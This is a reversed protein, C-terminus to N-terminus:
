CGGGDMKRKEKLSVMWRRKRGKEFALERRWKPRPGGRHGLWEWERWFAPGMEKEGGGPGLPGFAWRAERWGKGEMERKCMHVREDAVVEEGNNKRRCSICADDGWRHTSGWAAVGTSRGQEEAWRANRM